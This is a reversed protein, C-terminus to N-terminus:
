DIGLLVNSHEGGQRAAGHGHTWGCRWQGRGGLFEGRLIYGYGRVYVCYKRQLLDMFYRLVGTVPSRDGVELAPM